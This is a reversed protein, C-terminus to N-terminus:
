GVAAYVSTYGQMRTRDLPMMRDGAVVLLRPAGRFVANRTHAVVSSSGVSCGAAPGAYIISTDDGGIASALAETADPPRICLPNFSWGVYGHRVHPGLEGNCYAGVFPVRKQLVQDAIRAECETDGFIERGRGTCSFVVMAVPGARAGSRMAAQQMVAYGEWSCPELRGGLLLPYSSCVSRLVPLEAQLHLRCGHPTIDALQCCVVAGPDKAGETIANLSMVDSTKFAVIGNDLLLSSEVPGMVVRGSRFVQVDLGSHISDDGKRALWTALHPLSGTRSLVARLQEALSRSSCSLGGSVTVLVAAGDEENDNEEDESSGALVRWSPAERTIAVGAFVPQGELGACGRMALACARVQPPESTVAKLGAALSGPTRADRSGLGAAGGLLTGSGSSGVASYTSSVPATAKSAMIALGVFHLGKAAPDWDGRVAAAPGRSQGRSPRAEAGKGEGRACTPAASDVAAGSRGPHFFLDGRGSSVGGAIVPLAREDEQMWHLLGGPGDLLDFAVKTGAMLLWVSQLGLDRASPGAVAARATGVRTGEATGAGSGAPGQHDKREVATGGDHGVGISTPFEPEGDPKSTVAGAAARTETEAAEAALYSPTAASTSADSDMGPVPGRLWEMVATNAAERMLSGSLMKGGKGCMTACRRAGGRTAVSRRSPSINAFAKVSCGPMRGLLLGVGPNAGIRGGGSPDVEFAGSPGVGMLGSTACGVLQTGPPLRPLLGEVVKAALSGKLKEYNAVFVLAVDVCGLMGQLASECAEELADGLDGKVSAAASFCRYMQLVRALAYLRKCCTAARVIAKSGAGALVRFLVDDPLIELTVKATSM